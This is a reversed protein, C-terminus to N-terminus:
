KIRSLGAKAKQHLSAKYQNPSMKNCEEYYDKAKEPDNQNEYIIGLQLAANCTMYNKGKPDNQITKDFYLIADSYNKLQQSVRGLRYFYEVSNEENFYFDHAQKVLLNSAKQYYGGDYLLRAKLLVQNPIINESAERLAQKDDDILANGENVCLEMYKKYEPINNEFILSSWALKQYAEKIYHQGEFHDVYKELYFKANPDLKRLLANGMMFYLFPFKQVTQEKILNQLLLISEDNDGNRQLLKVRVFTVLPSQSSALPSSDLYEIADQKRNCQYFLIFAYIADSELGFIFPNSKKYEIVKEIEKVGLDITGRIGFLDKFLGPISISEALAHIISLSKYNPIFDPHKKVNDELTKYATFIERSSKFIENFKARLLAWQLRIESKIFRKYPDSNPLKDVVDIRKDINKKREEFDKEREHIFITFFDIYNAVHQLAVNNPQDILLSDLLLVSRDFNLNIIHDYLAVVEDNYDVYHQANM